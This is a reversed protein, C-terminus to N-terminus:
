DYFIVSLPAPHTKRIRLLDTCGGPEFVFDKDDKTRALQIVEGSETNCEVVYFYEIGDADFVRARKGYGIVNEVTYIPM